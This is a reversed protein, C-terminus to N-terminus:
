RAVLFQYYVYRNSSDKFCLASKDDCYSCVGKYFSTAVHGTSIISQALLQTNTSWTPITDNGTIKRNLAACTTTNLGYTIFLLDSQTTPTWEINQITGILYSSAPNTLTTDSASKSLAKYQLGGGDLHYLKQFTPATNFNANSPLMFNIDTAPAGSNVTAGNMVMQDVASQAQAAYGLIEAVAAQTQATAIENQPASDNSRSLAFSLGAFLVVAILVYMFVNGSSHSSRTM